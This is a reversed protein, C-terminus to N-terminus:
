LEGAAAMVRQERARYAKKAKIAEVTVSLACLGVVAILVTDVAEINVAYKLNEGGFVIKTDPFQKLDINNKQSIDTIVCFQPKFEELQEKLLPINSHASLSVLKFKAKNQRIIKLGQTGISGTSGIISINQM